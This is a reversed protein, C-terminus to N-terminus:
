KKLLYFYKEDEIKCDISFEENLRKITVDARRRTGDDTAVEAPITNNITVVRKLKNEIWENREEKSCGDGLYYRAYEDLAACWLDEGSTPGGGDDAWAKKAYDIVQKRIKKVIDGREAFSVPAWVSKGADTSEKSWDSQEAFEFVGGEGDMKSTLGKVRRTIEERLSGALYWPKDLKNLAETIRGKETKTLKSASSASSDASEKKGASVGSEKLEVSARNPSVDGWESDGLVCKVYEAGRDSGPWEFAYKVLPISKDSSVADSPRVLFIQLKPHVDKTVVYAMDRYEARAGRRLKEGFKAEAAKDVLKLTAEDYGALYALYEQTKRRYEVVDGDIADEMVGSPHVSIEPSIEYPTLGSAVDAVVVDWLVDAKEKIIKILEFLVVKTQEPVYSCVCSLYTSVVESKVGQWYPYHAYPYNEGRPTPAGLREAVFKKLLEWAGDVDSKARSLRVVVDSMRFAVSDTLAADRGTLRQSCAYLPLYHNPDSVDVKAAFAKRIEEHLRNETYCADKMRAMANKPMWIRPLLQYGNRYGFWRGMQTMTDVCTTDKVRDYYSVTLGELTLGRAIKDGGCVIWLSDGREASGDQYLKGDEANVADSNLVVVNVRSSKSDCLYRIGREISEWDKGKWDHIEVDMPWDPASKLFQARNFRLVEANWLRECESLFDAVSQKCWDIHRKIADRIEAHKAMDRDINVLMTTRECRSDNAKRISLRAAASCFAWAIADKLSRPLSPDAANCESDPIERVIDLKAVDCGKDPGFIRDFGFYEPSLSLSQVFDPYLPNDRPSENALNAFPTATYGVYCLSECNAGCMEVISKNITSRERELYVYKLFKQFASRTSARTDEEFFWRIVSLVDDDLSLAHRLDAYGSGSILNKYPATDPMGLITRLDKRGLGPRETVIKQIWDSLIRCDGQNGPKRGEEEIQSLLTQVDVVSWDSGALSNQSAYDAEDDVILVKMKKQYDGAKEFWRAIRPLHGGDKKIQEKQAVGVFSWGCTLLDYRDVGDRAFFRNEIYKTYKVHEFVGASKGDGFIRDRTQRLLENNKSTLVIIVNFGDDIARLMLGIYNQTKGSQVRGVVLGKARGKSEPRSLIEDIRGNSDKGLIATVDGKVREAAAEGHKEAILGLYREFYSAPLKDEAQEHPPVAPPAKPEVVKKTGKEQERPKWRLCLLGILCALALIALGGSVVRASPAFLLTAILGCQAAIGAIAVIKKLQDNKMENSGMGFGFM